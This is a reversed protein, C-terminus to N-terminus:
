WTAVCGSGVGVPDNCMLWADLLTLFDSMDVDCDQDLDGTLAAQPSYLWLEACSRPRNTEIVITDDVFVRGYRGNPSYAEIYFYTNKEWRDKWDSLFDSDAAALGLSADGDTPDFWDSYIWDTWSGTSPRFVRYGARVDDSSADDRLEMALDFQGGGDMDVLSETMAWLEVGTDTDPPVDKNNCIRLDFDVTNATRNWTGEFVFKEGAQNWAATTWGREAALCLRATANLTGYIGPDEMRPVTFQYRLGDPVMPDFVMDARIATYTWSNVAHEFLGSNDMILENCDYGPACTYALTWYPAANIASGDPAEFRDTFIGIDGEPLSPEAGAEVLANDLWIDVLYNKAAYGELYFYTNNSWTTKWNASFANLNIDGLGTMDVAPATTPDQWDGYTWDSWVDNPGDYKKYGVRVDNGGGDRVELALKIRDGKYVRAPVTFSQMVVGGDAGYQHYDPTGDDYRNIVRLDITFTSEIWEYGRGPAVTYRNWTASAALKEGSVYNAAGTWNPNTALYISAQANGSYGGGADNADMVDVEFHLGGATIPNFAKPTGDLANAARINSYIWASGDFNMNAMNDDVTASTGASAYTATWESLSGLPTGNTATFESAFGAQATAITSCAMIAIMALLATWKGMTQKM